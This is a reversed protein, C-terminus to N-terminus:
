KPMSASGSKGWRRPATVLVNSTNLSEALYDVFEERGFCDEGTVPPGVINRPM